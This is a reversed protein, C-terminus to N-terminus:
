LINHKLIFELMLAFVEHIIQPDKEAVGSWGEDRGSSKRYWPSVIGGWMEGYAKSDQIRIDFQAILKTKEEITFIVM